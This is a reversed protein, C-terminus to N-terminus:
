PMASEALEIRAMLKERLQNQIAEYQPQGSVNHQHLPDAKRDVLLEHEVGARDSAGDARWRVFFHDETTLADGPGFRTYADERHVQTPNSLLSAFSKGHIADKIEIGALECLTPHVDVFEVHSPIVADKAIGPGKMWMATRLADHLLQNKAWSNHEGLLWGHDGLVVVLTNQDLNLERMKAFVRGMLDDAQTVSAYYGQRMRQHYEDSNYEVRRSLDLTMPVYAFQERVLRFEDPMPQPLRRNEALRVEALPYRDYTEKPSYFPMHPKALGCALFFPQDQKSLRELDAMTRAAITGDHTDMVDVEGAEWMPVKEKREQANKGKITQERKKKWEKTADNYFTRGSTKPRWAPESWSRDDTDKKHHFVKGNSITTYGAEKFRQPLTKVDAADREAWTFFNPFREVTPYLATFLSARSAGCTPVQCYANEFRVGAAALADFNPTQMSSHGYDSTQPRLDDIYFLLVNPRDALTATAYFCLALLFVFRKM